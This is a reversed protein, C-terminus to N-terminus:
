LGMMKEFCRSLTSTKGKGSRIIGAISWSPINKTNQVNCIKPNKHLSSQILFREMDGIEKAPVKNRNGPLAVFFMVPKGKNGKFLVENYHQIKGPTFCEQKMSKTAKGVYWPTFGKGVKLAFVYCGQKQAIKSAEGDWFARIEDKGVHKASGTKQSSYPIDFPGHVILQTPM